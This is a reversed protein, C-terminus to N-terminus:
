SQIRTNKIVFFQNKRELLADIWVNFRTMMTLYRTIQELEQEHHYLNVPNIGFFDDGYGQEFSYLLVRYFNKNLQSATDKVLMQMQYILKTPVDCTQCQAAGDEGLDKCSMTDHCKPCAAVVIERADAPDFRYVCFSVRFCNRERVEEPFSDFNLFM